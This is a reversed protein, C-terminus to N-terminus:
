HIKRKKKCSFLSKLVKRAAPTNVTSYKDNTEVSVNEDRERKWGGEVAGAM